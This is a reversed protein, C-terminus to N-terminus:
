TIGSPVHFVPPGSMRIVCAQSIKDDMPIQMGLSKIYGTQVFTCTDPFTITWVENAGGLSALVKASNTPEYLLELSLEKSDKLGSVFRKWKSAANMTTIDIDTTDQGALGLKTIMGIPGTVSGQLTTGMGSIGSGPDTGLVEPM